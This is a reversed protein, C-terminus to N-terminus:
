MSVSVTQYKVIQVNKWHGMISDHRDVLIDITNKLRKNMTDRVIYTGDLKESIGCVEVTDGYSIPGGWRKLLNRSVAIWRHRRVKLHNIKSGDATILPQSDTQAKDPFYVSASVKHSFIPLKQVMKKIPNLKINLPFDTKSYTLRAPFFTVMLFFLGIIKKRVM